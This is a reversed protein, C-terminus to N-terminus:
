DETWGYINEYYWEPGETTRDWDTAVFGDPFVILERLSVIPGIHIKVGPLCRHYRIRMGRYDFFMTHCFDCIGQGAFTVDPVAMLANIEQTDLTHLNEPTCQNYDFRFTLNTKYVNPRRMFLPRWREMVSHYYETPANDPIVANLRLDCPTDLFEEDEIIGHLVQRDEEISASHRSVAIGKVRPEKAILEKLGTFTTKLATTNIYIDSQPPCVAILDKLLYLDAAPEGGTITIIHPMTHPLRSLFDIVKFPNVGWKRYDERSTCFPCTNPCDKPFYVSIRSEKPYTDLIPMKRNTLRFPTNM